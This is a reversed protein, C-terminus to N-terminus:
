RGPKYWEPNCCAVATGWVATWVAVWVLMPM